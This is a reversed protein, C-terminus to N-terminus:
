PCADPDAAIGANRAGAQAPRLSDFTGMGCPTDVPRVLFFFAQGPAPEQLDTAVTDAGDNEVCADIALEFAGGTAILSGLDGRVVDYMTAGVFPAWDFSDRTSFLLDTVGCGNRAGQSPSPLSLWTSAGDPFRGTTVDPSQLGFDFYDQGTQGDSHTLQVVESGTSSLAFGLETEDLTLFGGPEITTGPPFQYKTPEAATDSLYWGGIDVPVTGRNYLEIWDDVGGAASTTLFENICVDSHVAASDNSDAPTPFTLHEPAGVTDPLYGFPVEEGQVGLTFGDVFEDPGPAPRFLRVHDGGDGLSFGVGGVDSDFPNPNLSGLAEPYRETFEDILGAVVLYEGPELTADLYCRDHGNDDDLLYWGSLDQTGPGLNLLEVYEVDPSGPSNSVVENVVIENPAPLSECVPDASCDADSCDIPGDCDDDILDDCVGESAAPAGCDAPCNCPTEGPDCTANPCAGLSALVFPIRGDLFDRVTQFESSGSGLLPDADIAPGIAAELATLRADIAAASYPGNLLDAYIQFYQAQFIPDDHILAEAMHGSNHPTALLPRDIEGGGMTTDLDWGLYLRPYQGEPFVQWDYYWYNNNKFVAGDKNGVFNTVVALTLLQEMDVRWLTQDRWDAPQPDAGGAHDFPYWNFAFPNPEGERTRQENSPGKFLWGGEDIGRDILFSKDVQEVHQYLGVLTGNVWVNTWAIRSTVIGADGYLLWSIGERIGNSASGGGGGGEFAGPPPGASGGGNELNLKVKGSFTQGPVFENIDIKLAPKQPDTESPIATGRKRRIGVQIEPGDECRFSANWYHYPKEGCYGGPCSFQLAEWDLPDMTIHFDLVQHEDFLDGCDQASVTGGGLLAVSVLVALRAVVSVMKVRM